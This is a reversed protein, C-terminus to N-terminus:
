QGGIPAIINLAYLIWLLPEEIRIPNPNSEMQYRVPTNRNRIEDFGLIVESEDVPHSGILILNQGKHLAYWPPKEGNMIMNVANASEQTMRVYLPDEETRLNYLPQTEAGLASVAFYERGSFADKNQLPMDFSKYPDILSRLKTMAGRSQSFETMNFGISGKNDIGRFIASEETIFDSLQQDKAFKKLKDSKSIVVAVKPKNKRGGFYSGLTNIVLSAPNNASGGGQSSFQPFQTPDILVLIGSSKELYEGYKEMNRSNSCNEGAIDYLVFTYTKDNKNDRVNMMMPPNMYNVQTAQPLMYGNRIPELNMNFTDVVALGASSLYNRINSILQSLYVTKGSGTIGVISIFVTPYCGYYDSIVNHCHPCLRDVAKNGKVDRKQWLFVPTNSNIQDAFINGDRESEHYLMDTDDATIVPLRWEDQGFLQDPEVGFRGKWFNELKEDSTVRMFKRDIRAKKLETDLRSLDDGFEEEIQNEDKVSHVLSSKDIRFHVEYHKFKEFCYPCVINNTDAKPPIPHPTPTSGVPPTKPRFIKDIIGM